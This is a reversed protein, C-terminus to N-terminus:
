GVARGQGSRVQGSARGQRAERRAPLHIAGRLLADALLRLDAAVRGQLRVVASLLQVGVLPLAVHLRQLLERCAEAWASRSRKLDTVASQM